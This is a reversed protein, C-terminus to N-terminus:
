GGEAGERSRYDEVCCRLVLKTVSVIVFVLSNIQLLAAVNLLSCSM